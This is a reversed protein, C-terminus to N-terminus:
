QKVRVGEGREWPSLPQPSPSFFTKPLSRCKEDTMERFLYMVNLSQILPTNMNERM